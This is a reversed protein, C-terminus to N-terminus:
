TLINTINIFTTSLLEVPHDLSFTSIAILWVVPYEQLQHRDTAIWSIRKRANPIDM